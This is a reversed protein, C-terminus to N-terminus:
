LDGIRLGFGNEFCSGEEYIVFANDKCYVDRVVDGFDKPVYISFEVSLRWIKREACRPWGLYALVGYHGGPEGSVTLLHSTVFNVKGNYFKFLHVAKDM